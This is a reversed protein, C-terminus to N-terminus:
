FHPRISCWRKEFETVKSVSTIQAITVQAATDNITQRNVEGVIRYDTDFLNSIVDGGDVVVTNGAGSVDVFNEDITTQYSVVVRTAVDASFVDDGDLTGDTNFVGADALAGSLDIDIPTVGNADKAGVVAFAGLQAQTRTLDDTNEVLRVSLSNAVFTQGDQIEDALMLDDFSFFDSVWTTATWTITDGPSNGAPAADNTVVATKTVDLSKQAITSTDTQQAQPNGLYSFDATATNQSSTENGTSAPVIETTGDNDSFEQVFGTYSLTIDNGAIGTVSNYTASISGGGNADITFVCTDPVPSFGSCDNDVAPNTIVLTDPITDAIVLSTVTEGNAVDANITFNRPYNPGTALAVTAATNKELELVTPTISTTAAPNQCITDGAGGCESKTGDAMDGLVFIGRGTIGFATGVAADTTMSTALTWEIAPQGVALTGTPANLIILTEDDQITIQEGTFPNTYTASAVGFGGFTTCAVPAGSPNTLTVATTCAASLALEEPLTIEIIPFFGTDTSTASSNTLSATVNVADNLLEPDEATLSLSPEPAAHAEASVLLSAFALSLISYLISSPNLACFNQPRM